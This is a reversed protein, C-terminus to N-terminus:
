NEDESEAALKSQIDKTAEEVMQDLVRQYNDLAKQGGRLYMAIITIDTPSAENTLFEEVFEEDAPFCSAIVKIAKTTDGKDNINIQSLRLRKDADLRPKCQKDGFEVPEIGAIKLAM